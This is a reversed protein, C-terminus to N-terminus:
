IAKSSYNITSQVYYLPLMWLANMLLGLILYIWGKTEYRYIASELRVKILVDSPAAAGRSAAIGCEVDTQNVAQSTGNVSDIPRGNKDCSAIYDFIKPSIAKWFVILLGQISLVRAVNMLLYVWVGLLTQM